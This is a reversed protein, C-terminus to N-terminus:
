SLGPLCRILHPLPEDGVIGRRFEAGSNFFQFVVQRGLLEDVRPVHDGGTGLRHQIGIAIGVAVQKISALFGVLRGNALDLVARFPSRQLGAVGAHRRGQQRRQQPSNPMAEYGYVISNISTSLQLPTSTGSSLTSYGSIAELRISFRHSSPATAM